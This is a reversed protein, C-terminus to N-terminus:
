YKENEQYIKESHICWTRKPKNLRALLSNNPKRKRRAPESARQRRFEQKQSARNVSYCFILLIGVLISIYVHLLHFRVLLFCAVIYPINERFTLIYIPVLNIIASIIRM